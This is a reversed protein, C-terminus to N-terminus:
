GRRRFIYIYGETGVGAAEDPERHLLELAASGALALVVSPDTYYMDFVASTGHRWRRYRSRVGPPLAEM